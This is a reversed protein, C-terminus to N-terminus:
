WHATLTGLIRLGGIKLAVGGTPSFPSTVRDINSPPPAPTLGTWRGIVPPILIKGQNTSALGRM